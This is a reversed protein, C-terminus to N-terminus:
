TMYLVEKFLEKGTKVSRTTFETLWTSVHEVLAQFSASFDNRMDHM